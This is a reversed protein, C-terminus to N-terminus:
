VDSRLQAAPTSLCTPLDSSITNMGALLSSCVHCCQSNRGMSCVGAFGAGSRVELTANSALALGRADDPGALLNRFSEKFVTNDFSDTQIVLGGSLEVANKM